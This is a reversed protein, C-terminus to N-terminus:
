YTITRKCSTRDMWYNRSWLEPFFLGTKRCCFINILHKNEIGAGSAVIKKIFQRLDGGKYLELIQMNDAADLRRCSNDSLTPAVERWERM